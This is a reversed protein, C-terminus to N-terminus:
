AQEKLEREIVRCIVRILANDPCQAVGEEAIRHAVQLEGKERYARALFLYADGLAKEQMRDRQPMEKGLAIAKQLSSIAKDYNEWKEFFLQGLAEHLVPSGPNNKIGEELFGRAKEPKKAFDALFFACTVYANIDLPNIITQIRYWPILDQPDGHRAPGPRYPKLHRELDGLIGRWDIDKSPITTPGGCQHEAFGSMSHSDERMGEAQEAATFPRYTIGGHLYDVTKLWLYAGLNTRFQGLLTMPISHSAHRLEESSFQSTIMVAPRAKEALGGAIVALGLCVAIVLIKKWLSM